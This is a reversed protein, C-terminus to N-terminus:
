VRLLLLITYKCLIFTISSQIQLRISIKLDSKGVTRSIDKNLSKFCLMIEIRIQGLITWFFVRLVLFTSYKYLIFTLSFQSQLIFHLRINLIQYPDADVHYPDM